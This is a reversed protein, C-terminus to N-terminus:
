STEFPLIVRTFDKDGCLHSTTATLVCINHSMVNVHNRNNELHPIGLIETEELLKMTLWTTTLLIKSIDAMILIQSRTRTMNHNKLGLYTTKDPGWLSWWHEHIFLHPTGRTIGEETIPDKAVLRRRWLISTGEFSVRVSLTLNPTVVLNILSFIHFLHLSQVHPQPDLSISRTQQL